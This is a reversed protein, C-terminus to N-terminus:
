FSTEPQVVPSGASLSTNSNSAFGPSAARHLAESVGLPFIVDRFPLTRHCAESWSASFHFGKLIGGSLKDLWLLPSRYSLGQPVTHGGQNTICCLLIVSLVFVGFSHTGFGSTSYLFTSLFSFWGLVTSPSYKTKCYIFTYDCIFNAM